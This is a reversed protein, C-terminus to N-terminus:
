PKRGRYSLFVLGLPGSFLPHLSSFCFNTIRQYVENMTKNPGRQRDESVGLSWKQQMGVSGQRGDPWFLIFSHSKPLFDILLM